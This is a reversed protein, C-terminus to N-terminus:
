ELSTGKDEAPLAAKYRELAEPHKPTNRIIAPKTTGLFADLAKFNVVVRKSALVRVLGAKPNALVEAEFYPRLYGRYYRGKNVTLRVRVISKPVLLLKDDAARPLAVQAQVWRRAAGDWAPGSDQLEMPIGHFQSQKQTYAILPNRIACTTIDSVIDKDIGEVMLASDELDRLFGSSVARSSRLSSLLEQAKDRTGLSRGQSKGQSSGLHTENPEVLPYILSELARRDDAAIAALLSEFFSQLLSVCADAWDGAQNRIATPDIYVPVDGHVDVDVFDVSGQTMGLDFYDTVRTM